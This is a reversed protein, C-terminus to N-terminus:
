RMEQGGTVNIAQGTMYSAKQSALFVVVNAVDDYECGRGLPVQELYKRRVEEKSIGWKKAYQEYLSEQWLPSDLLNGPCVANVRIGYPALELALSQTFGIGGFKSAAYASNQFSGKKGTKSNIQIIAGRKRPKMVKAAAKASVFYGTLNVELVRRWTSLPMETIEGAQLIGANAVLLDLRGFSKVAEGVARDMEEESTVDAKAFLTRRRRRAEIARAAARARSEDLDLVVVWAGEAALRDAIKEGLGQGGGTVLAVMGALEGVPEPEGLPKAAALFEREAERNWGGDKLAGALKGNHARLDELPTLPFDAVQPYIVVKGPFRGQAVSEYGQRVSGLGGVAAVARDTSLRGAETEDLMEKLDAISSGSSGTMRVQKPGYFASVDLSVKVGRAVGAFVNMTGGQALYPFSEAILAPAPVLVVIDDYGRGGALTELKKKFEEPPM